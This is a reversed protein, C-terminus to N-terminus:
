KISLDEKEGFNLDQGQAFTGHKKNILKLWESYQRTSGFKVILDTYGDGNLDGTFPTYIGQYARPSNEFMLSFEPEFIGDGKNVSVYWWAEREGSQGYIGTDTLGDANIDLTFSTYNNIQDWGQHGNDIGKMADFKGEGKNIAAMWFAAKEENRCSLFLDELGDGNIDGTHIQYYSSEINSPIEIQISQAKKFGSKKDNYFVLGSASVHEQIM